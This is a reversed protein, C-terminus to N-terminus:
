TQKDKLIETFTRKPDPRSLPLMGDQKLYNTTTYLWDQLNRSPTVRKDGEMHFVDRIGKLARAFRETMHGCTSCPPFYILYEQYIYDPVVICTACSDLGPYPRMAPDHNIGMPEQQAQQSYQNSSAPRKLAGQVKSPEAPMNERFYKHQSKLINRDTVQYTVPQVPMKAANKFPEARSSSPQMTSKSNSTSSSPMSVSHARSRPAARQKSRSRGVSHSCQSSSNEKRGRTPRRLFEKGTLRRGTRTNTIAFPALRKGDETQAFRLHPTPLSEDYEPNRPTRRIRPRRPEQSNM